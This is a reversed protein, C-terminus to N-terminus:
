IIIYLLLRLIDVQNGNNQITPVHFNFFQYKDLFTLM